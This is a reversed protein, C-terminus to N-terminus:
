RESYKRALRVSHPAFLAFICVSFTYRGPLGKIQGFCNIFGSWKRNEYSVMESDCMRLLQSFRLESFRVQSERAGKVGKKVESRLNRCVTCKVVHGVKNREERIDRLRQSLDANPLM